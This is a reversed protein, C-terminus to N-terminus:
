AKGAKEDVAQEFIFFLAAVAKVDGALGRGFEFVEIGDRVPEGFHHGDAEIPNVARIWEEKADIPIIFTAGVIRQSFEIPRKQLATFVAM